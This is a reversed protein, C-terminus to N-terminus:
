GMRIMRYFMTSIILFRGKDMIVAAKINEPYYKLMAYTVMGGVDHGALMINQLNLSRIMSSVFEAITKKDSGAINQSLGIGPLDIALVHYREKLITM